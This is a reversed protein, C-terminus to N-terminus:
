IKQNKKIDWGAKTTGGASGDANTETYEFEMKTFNLSFSDTPTSNEQGSGSTQYSSVLLDSFSWRLYELPQEGAKRCTLKATKIHEGTATALFLKPSSKDLKKVFHFDQMSM